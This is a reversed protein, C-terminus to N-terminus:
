FAKQTVTPKNKRHYFHWGERFGALKARRQQWRIQAAHPMDVLRRNRACFVIDRRVDNLWGLM